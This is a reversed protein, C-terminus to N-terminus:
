IEERPHFIKDNVRHENRRKCSLPDCFLSDVEPCGKEKYTECQKVPDYESLRRCFLVCIAVVVFIFSLAEM